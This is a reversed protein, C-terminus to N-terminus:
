RSQGPPSVRRGGRRATLLLMRPKFWLTADDPHVDIAKEAVAKAEETRNRERLAYAWYIWGFANDPEIEALKKAKRTMLNWKKSELYLKIRVKLIDPRELLDDGEIANLEDAAEKTMGLELYGNAYQLRTEVRIMTQLPDVITEQPLGVKM